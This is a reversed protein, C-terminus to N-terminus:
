VLIKKHIYLSDTDTCYFSIIYFGGIQKIVDSMLRKSQSLIYIGFHSPMTNISKAEDDDDFSEDNELKVILNGNKLLLWENVRDDFNDRM